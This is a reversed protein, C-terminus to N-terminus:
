PLSPLQFDRVIKTVLPNPKQRKKTLLYIKDFISHSVKKDLIVLRNKAPAKLATFQNMPAVGHGALALRRVLEVDQIEAIIKPTVKHRMLYEQIAHYIHSQATPLIMPTGNLDKPFSKIKKALSLHACFVVPITCIM